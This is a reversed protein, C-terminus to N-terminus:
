IGDTIYVVEQNHVCIIKKIKLYQGDNLKELGKFRRIATEFIVKDFDSNPLVIVAFETERKSACHKLGRLINNASGAQCGAVEFLAGDWLGETHRGEGKENELIVVNGAKVGAILADQEYKGGVKDLNHGIHTAKVGGTAEDFEVDTYNNDNKLREYIAKNHEYRAVEEITKKADNSAKYYPHKPPFLQLTKGPNYRFMRQKVGDTCNDGREM